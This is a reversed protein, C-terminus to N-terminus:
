EKVNLRRKVDEPTKIAPNRDLITKFDRRFSRLEERMNKNELENKLIYISLEDELTFANHLRDRYRINLPLKEPLSELNEQNRLEVSMIEVNEGPGVPRRKLDENPFFNYLNNKNKQFLDWKGVRVEEILLVDSGAVNKLSVSLRDNELTEDLYIFPRSALEFHERTQFYVFISIALSGSAILLSIVNSVKM